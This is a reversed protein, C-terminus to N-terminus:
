VKRAYATDVISTEAGSDLLMTVKETNINGAVKDQKFWKGATHYNWYGRSDGLALVLELKAPSRAYEDHRRM